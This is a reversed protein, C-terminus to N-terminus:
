YVVSTTFKQKPTMLSAWYVDVYGVSANNRQISYEPHASVTGVFLIVSRRVVVLLAVLKPASLNPLRPSPFPAERNQLSFYLINATQICSPQQKAIFWIEFGETQGPIPRPGCVEDASYEELEKKIMKKDSNVDEKGDKRAM